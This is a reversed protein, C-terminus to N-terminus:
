QATSVGVNQKLRALEYRIGNVALHKDEPSSRGLKTVHTKVMLNYLGVWDSQIEKNDIDAWDAHNRIIDMSSKGIVQQVLLEYIKANQKVNDKCEDLYDAFVKAQLKEQLKETIQPEIGSPDAIIWKDPTPYKVVFPIAPYVNICNAKGSMAEAKLQKKFKRFVKFANKGNSMLRESEEWSTFDKNAKTKEAM